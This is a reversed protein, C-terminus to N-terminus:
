LLVSQRPLEDMDSVHSVCVVGSMAFALIGRNYAILQSVATGTHPLDAILQVQSAQAMLDIAFKQHTLQLTEAHYLRIVGTQSDSVALMGGGPSCTLQGISYHMTKRKLVHGGSDVVVLTRGDTAFITGGGRSVAISARTDPATHLDIDFRGVRLNQQYIHLHLSTD